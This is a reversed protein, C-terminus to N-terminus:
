KSLKTQVSDIEEQTLGIELLYGNVKSHYNATLLNTTKEFGFVFRIMEDINVLWSGKQNLEPHMRDYAKGSANKRKREHIIQNLNLCM